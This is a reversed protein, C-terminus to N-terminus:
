NNANIQSYKMPCIFSFSKGTHLMKKYYTGDRIDYIDKFDIYHKQYGYLTKFHQYIFIIKLAVKSMNIHVM